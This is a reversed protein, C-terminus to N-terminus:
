NQAHVRPLLLCALALRRTSSRSVCSPFVGCPVQGTCSIEMVLITHHVAYLPLTPPRINRLPEHLLLAIPYAKYTPPPLLLIISEWWLANLHFLIKYLGFCFLPPGWLPGVGVSPLAGCPVCWRLPPGWLPGVCFVCLCFSGAWRSHGKQQESGPRPNV